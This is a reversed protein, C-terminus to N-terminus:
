WWLDFYYKRFLDLGDEIIEAEMSNQKFLKFNSDNAILEFAAIMKDIDDMWQEYSYGPIGPYGNTLKKYLKLRPLVFKAIAVDLNWTDKPNVYAGLKKLQKKRIRENM